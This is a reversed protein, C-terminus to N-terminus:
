FFFLTVRFRISKGPPVLPLSGVHWALSMFSAPEIGPDPLDGPRACPLGSWSEKRSFAMSLPAKYAITWLTVFLRICSFHSLVHVLYLIVFSRTLVSSVCVSFARLHYLCFIFSHQWLHLSALVALLWWRGGAAVLSWWHGGAAVMLWWRGGTAVLPSPLSM